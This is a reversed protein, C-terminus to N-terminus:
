GADQGGSPFPDFDLREYNVEIKPNNRVNDWVMELLSDFDLRDLDARERYGDFFQGNMLEWRDRNGLYGTGGLFQALNRVRLRLPLHPLWRVQDCDVILVRRWMQQTLLSNVVFNAPKTDAHYLRHNHMDALLMGCERYLSDLNELEHYSWDYFNGPGCDRFFLLEGDHRTRLMGVCPPTLGRMMDTCAMARRARSFFPILPTSKFHKVVFSIGGVELRSVCRKRDDKLCNGERVLSFHRMAAEHLIELECGSVGYWVGNLENTQM